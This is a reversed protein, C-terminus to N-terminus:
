VKQCSTHSEDCGACCISCNGTPGGQQCMEAAGTRARSHMAELSSASGAIVILAMANIRLLRKM